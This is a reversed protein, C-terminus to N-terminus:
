SRFCSLLTPTVLAAAVSSSEMSSVNLTINSIASGFAVARHAHAAFSVGGQYQRGERDAVM